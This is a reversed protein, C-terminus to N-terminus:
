SHSADGGEEAEFGETAPDLDYHEGCIQCDATGRGEETTMTAIDRASYISLSQRVKDESCTCGFRVPQADFVRPQEEHFLRLLLDNPALSPGILEIDEVTDLLINVRRWNEKEADQVLDDARLVDGSGEGTAVFPSAKPMHQLMVGGARWHEPVGPEMSKGFSLSFRSPLQESQAFYAEACAALSTGDLPTIGQYPKMGKGQDIMIAFYGEGVQDFASGDTLRTDDYSAYARIRAPDGENEPGYYDTAIMRVPGKSQVQLQLKWRLKITQGILATLLAMEAVLAEVQPPYNHQALISNLVNDLRAVRGRMDSADLQFPLVTDDWAIQQGSTM